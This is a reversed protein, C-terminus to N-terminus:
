PTVEGTKAIPPSRDGLWTSILQDLRDRDPGEIVSSLDRAAAIWFPRDDPSPRPTSRPVGALCAILTATRFAAGDREDQRRADGLSRGIVSVVVLLLSALVLVLAATWLITASIM